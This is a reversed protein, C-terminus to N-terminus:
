QGLHSHSVVVTTENDSLVSRRLVDISGQQARQPRFSQCRETYWISASLHKNALINKWFVRRFSRPCHHLLFQNISDLILLHVVASYGCCVVRPLLKLPSFLRQYIATSALTMQTPSPCHECAPFTLRTFSKGAM